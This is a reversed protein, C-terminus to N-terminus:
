RGRRKLIAKDHDTKSTPRVPNLSQKEKFVRHSLTNFCGSDMGDYFYRLRGIIRRVRDAHCSSIPKRVQTKGLLVYKAAADALTKSDYVGVCIKDIHSPGFHLDSDYSWASHYYPEKQHYVLWVADLKRPPPPPASV